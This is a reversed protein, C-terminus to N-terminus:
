KASRPRSPSKKRHNQPVKGIHAQLVALELEKMIEAFRREYTYFDGKAELAELEPWREAALQLYEEKTM